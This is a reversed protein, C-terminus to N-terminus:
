KAPTVLTAGNEVVITLLVKVPVDGVNIGEHIKGADVFFSEGAKYITSPVGEYDVQFTGQEVLGVFTGPHTHRGERGGVPVETRIMIAEYGPATIARRMLVTRKLAPGQSHPTAADTDLVFPSLVALLLLAKSM